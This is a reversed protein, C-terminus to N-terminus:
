GGAVSDYAAADLYVDNKKWGHSFGCRSLKTARKKIRIDEQPQGQKRKCEGGRDTTETEASKCKEKRKKEKSKERENGRRRKEAM